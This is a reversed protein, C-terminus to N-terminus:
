VKDLRHWGDETDELLYHDPKFAYNIEDQSRSQIVRLVYRQDDSPNSLEGAQLLIVLEVSPDYAELIAKDTKGNEWIFYDYKEPLEMDDRYITLKM